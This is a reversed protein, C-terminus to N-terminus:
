RKKGDHMRRAIDLWLNAPYASDAAFHDTLSAVSAAVAAELAQRQSADADSVVAGVARAFREGAIGSPLKADHLLQAGHNVQARRIANLRALVKTVRQDSVRKGASATEGFAPFDVPFKTVARAVEVLVARQAPTTTATTNANTGAAGTPNAQPAATAPLATTGAAVAVGAGRLVTRRTLDTM